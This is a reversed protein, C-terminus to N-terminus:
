IESDRYGRINEEMVDVITSGVGGLGKFEFQFFIANEDEVLEPNNLNTRQDVFRQYALRIRWCCSNYEVGVLDNLRDKNEISYLASFFVRWDRTVPLYSSVDVQNIDRGQNLATRNRRYSYGLNFVAEGSGQWGFQVSTQELERDRRSWLWESRFDWNDSLALGFQAAIASSDRTSTLPNPSVERDDFYFIQGIGAVLNERGTESDIFRTTVGLSVQNSDDIRDHGSFRTERFLQDYSFTLVSTDFRPLGAQEEFDSWLYFVRPELTQLGWSTQREFFLGGDLSFMPAGVDPTDDLQGQFLIEDDLDYNIQRYKVTPTLFGWIWEMTYNAGVANYLRQGEILDPHNFHAYDTEWLLNLGFNEPAATRTVTLQPVSAYPDRVIDRAITKFDEFKLTTLWNDGLYDLQALQLLETSQRVDLSTTDIDSFYENDSTNTYDIRTRWRQGFLGGQEIATLWRDGDEEPRDTQYEDDGKIAAGSLEWYGIARSLYRFELETLLGREDIYRPTFTADYNPALNFYYPTAVDLGGRSDDGIDAWLFGSKRRDDLPFELYPTYLVPVGGMKIKADRAVGYGEDLNLHVTEAKMEWTNKRPPCYSYTADDLDINGDSRRELLDASSRIHQQHLVIQGATLQAEGSNIDITGRAGRLLLGPERMEVNGLLEGVRTETNFEGQSARLVRYGQRAEVDGFFRVIDGELESRDAYAEINEDAPDRSTDEGELPDLYSGGCRESRPSTDGTDTNTTWDLLPFAGCDEPNTVEADKSNDEATVPAGWLFAAAFLAWITFPTATVFLTRAAQRRRYHKRRIGSSWVRNM